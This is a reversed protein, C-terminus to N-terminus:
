EAPLLEEAPWTLPGDNFESLPLIRLLRRGNVGLNGRDEVVEADFLGGPMRYRVRSGIRLEDGPRLKRRTVM